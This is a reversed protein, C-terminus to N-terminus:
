KKKPPIHRVKRVAPLPKLSRLYAVIADLDGTKINKYYNYGMPPLMKEGSARQGNTIAVKIQRDTWKGIGTTKDPTINASFVTGWPGYFPFGGSGIKSLDRGRKGMPTHCEFCHGIRALYEGYKVKGASPTVEAVSKVPPGYAPPLPIRYVSKLVKNRIPKVQRLYAVIAKVDRDSIHRYFQFPMPPGITAGDPRKGERIARIIQADTWNGIGTEKDPTINPAYATFPKEDFKFGGALEKSMIPRGRDKPTHCNGCAVISKMLYAGRELLTEAQATGWSVLFAGALAAVAYCYRIRRM